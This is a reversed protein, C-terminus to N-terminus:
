SVFERYAVTGVAFAPGGRKILQLCIERAEKKKFCGESKRAVGASVMAASLIMEADFYSIKEVLRKLLDKEDLSVLENDAPTDPIVAKEQQEKEAKLAKKSKAAM